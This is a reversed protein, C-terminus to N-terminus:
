FLKTARQCDYSATYDTEMKRANKFIGAWGEPYKVRVSHIYKAEGSIRSISLSSYTKSDTDMNNIAPKHDTSFCKLKFEDEELFEIKIIGGDESRIECVTESINIIINTRESSNELSTRPAVGDEIFTIKMTDEVFKCDLILDM